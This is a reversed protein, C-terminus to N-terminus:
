ALRKASYNFRSMSLHGLSQYVAFRQFYFSALNFQCIHSLELTAVATGGPIKGVTSALRRLARVAHTRVDMSHFFISAPGPLASSLSSSPPHPSPSSLTATGDSKADTRLATVFLGM